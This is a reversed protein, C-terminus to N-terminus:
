RASPAGTAAPPPTVEGATQAAPSIAPAAAPAPLPIRLWAVANDRYVKRLTEPDLKLGKYRGDGDRGSQYYRSWGAGLPTTFVEQELQDRTAWIVTSYWAPTKESNGTVVSDTGWVIRDPFSRFLDLFISPDQEMVALGKLLIERTGLSSDTYLNPHESMMRKFRELGGDRPKWFTVGYHPVMVNLKPHADLVAELQEGYKLVNVHWNVPLGTEELYAYVPEMEPSNLPGASLNSHGSYLKVGKAGAAVHRKLRDLRDPDAPDITCFPIVEGPHEAAAVMIEDFNDSMGPEGKPGSGELTFAPSAVFITSSVGSRRAAELYRDLHKTAYLHEHANVLGLSAYPDPRSGTALERRLAANEAQVARLAASSEVKAAKPLSAPAGEADEGVTQALGGEEGKEPAEARGEAPPPAKAPDGSCAFFLSLLLSLGM